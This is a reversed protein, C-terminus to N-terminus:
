SGPGVSSGPAASPDPDGFGLSASSGPAASPDWDGSTACPGGSWPTVLDGSESSGSPAFPRSNGPGAGISISAGSGGGGPLGTGDLM